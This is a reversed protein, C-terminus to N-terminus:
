AKKRGFRARITATVLTCQSVVIGFSFLVITSLVGAGAV